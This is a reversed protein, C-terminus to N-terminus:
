GIRSAETHITRTGDFYSTSVYGDRTTSCSRRCEVRCQQVREVKPEPDLQMISHREMM